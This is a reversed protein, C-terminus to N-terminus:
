DGVLIGTECPSANFLIGALQPAGSIIIGTAEYWNANDETCQQFDAGSGVVIIGDAKVGISGVTLIIALTIWAFMNKLNKM